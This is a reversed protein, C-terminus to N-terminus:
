STFISLWDSIQPWIAMWPGGDLSGLGLLGDYVQKAKVAGPVQAEVFVAVCLVVAMAQYYATGAVGALVAKFEVGGRGVCYLDPVAQDFGSDLGAAQAATVGQAKFGAEGQVAVFEASVDAGYFGAKSDEALQILGFEYTAFGQYGLFFQSYFLFQYSYFDKITCYRTM